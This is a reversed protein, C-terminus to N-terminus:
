TSKHKPLQTSNQNNHSHEHSRQLWPLTTGHGETNNDDLTTNTFGDDAAWPEEMSHLEEMDQAEQEDCGEEMLRLETEDDDFEERVADATQWEIDEWLITEYEKRLPAASPRGERFEASMFHLCRHMKERVLHKTFLDAPNDEGKVKFLAFERRRLKEQVWLSNVAIHRQTGLGVRKCIGKAASSDTHVRLGGEVNLDQMLQQIGIGTGVGKVM